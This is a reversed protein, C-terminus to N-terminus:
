REDPPWRRNELAIEEQKRAIYEDVSSLADRYKGRIAKVRAAHEEASSWPTSEVPAAPLAVTGAPTHASREPKLFRELSEITVRWVRGTKVGHLEGRHIM